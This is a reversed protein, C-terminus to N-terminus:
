RQSDTDSVFWVMACLFMLLFFVSFMASAAILILSAAVQLV